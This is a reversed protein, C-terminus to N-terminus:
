AGQDEAVLGPLFLDGGRQIGLGDEEGQDDAGEGDDGEEPLVLLVAEDAVVPCGGAGFGGACGGTAVGFLFLGRDLLTACCRVWDEKGVRRRREWPRRWEKQEALGGTADAELRHLVWGGRGGRFDWIELKWDGLLEKEKENGKEYELDQEYEREKEYERRARRLEAGGRGRQWTCGCVLLAEGRLRGDFVLDM